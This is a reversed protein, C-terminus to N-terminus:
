LASSCAPHSGGQSTYSQCVTQFFDVTDVDVFQHDVLVWPVFTHDSPTMKAYKTQMELATIPDDHCAKLVGFDLSEWPIPINTTTTSAAACGSFVSEEFPEERHGMPLVGELCEFFDMYVLAPYHEVACQQWLNADCEAEGHQCSVVTTHDREVIKSNGFPIVELDMVFPGLTRYTPILSKQFFRQCDICLSESMVQVSVRPTQANTLATLQLATGLIFSTIEVFMIIHYNRYYLTLHSSPALFPAM